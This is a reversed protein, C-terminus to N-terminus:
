VAGNIAEAFRIERLMRKILASENQNVTFYTKTRSSCNGRLKHMGKIRFLSRVNIGVKLWCFM